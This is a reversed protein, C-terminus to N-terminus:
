TCTTTTTDKNKHFRGEGTGGVRVRRVRFGQGMRQTSDGHIQKMQQLQDSYMGNEPGVLAKM